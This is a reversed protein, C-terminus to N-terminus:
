AVSQFVPLTGIGYHTAIYTLIKEMTMCVQGDWQCNIEPFSYMLHYENCHWSLQVDNPLYVYVIFSANKGTVYSIGYKWGADALLSSMNELLLTKREYIVDKRHHLRKASMNAFETQLLMYVIRAEVNHKNAKVIKKMDAVVRRLGIGLASERYNKLKELTIRNQNNSCRSKQKQAEINQQLMAKLVPNHTEREQKMLDFINLGFLSFEKAEKVNLHYSQLVKTATVSGNLYGIRMKKGVGALVEDTVKVESM